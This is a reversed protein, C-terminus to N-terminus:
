DSVGGASGVNTGVVLVRNSIGEVVTAWSSSAIVLECRGKVGDSRGVLRKSGNEESGGPSITVDTSVRGM